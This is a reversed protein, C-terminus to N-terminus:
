TGNNINSTQTKPLYISRNLCFKKQNSIQESTTSKTDFFNNSSNFKKMANSNIRNYINNFSNTNNPYPSYLSLNQNLLLDTSKQKAIPNSNSLYKHNTSTLNNSSFPRLSSSTNLLVNGNFTVSCHYTLSPDIRFTQNVIPQSLNQFNTEEVKKLNNSVFPFTSITHQISIHPPNTQNTTTPFYLNLNENNLEQEQPTEQQKQLQKPVVASSKNFFNM